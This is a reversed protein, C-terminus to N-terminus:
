IREDRQNKVAVGVGNPDNTEDPREYYITDSSASFKIVQSPDGLDSYRWDHGVFIKSSVKIGMKLSPNKIHITDAIYFVHYFLVRDTFKDYDFKPNDRNIDVLTDKIKVRAGTATWFKISQQDLSIKYHHTDCWQKCQTSVFYLPGKLVEIREIDEDTTTMMTYINLGTNPM